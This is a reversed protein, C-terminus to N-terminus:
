REFQLTPDREFTFFNSSSKDYPHWGLHNKIYFCLISKLRVMIELSVM